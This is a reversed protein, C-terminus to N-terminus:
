RDDRFALVQDIGDGLEGEKAVLGRPSLLGSDRRRRRGQRGRLLRGLRQADLVNEIPDVRVIRQPSEHDPRIRGHRQLSPRRIQLRGGIPLPPHELPEDRHRRKGIPLRRKAEIRQM